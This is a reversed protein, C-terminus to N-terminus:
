GLCRREAGEDVSQGIPVVGALRQAGRDIRDGMSQVERLAQRLQKRPLCAACAVNTVTRAEPITHLAASHLLLHFRETRDDLDDHALNALALSSHTISNFGDNWCVNHSFRPSKRHLPRPTNFYFINLQVGNSLLVPKRGFSLLSASSCSHPLSNCMLLTTFYAVRKQPEYSSGDYMDFFTCATQMQIFHQVLVSM